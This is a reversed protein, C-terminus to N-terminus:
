KKFMTGISYIQLMKDLIQGREYSVLPKLATLFEFTTNRKSDNRSDNRSDNKSDSKASERTTEEEKIVEDQNTTKLGDLNFNSLLSSLEEPNINNVLDAISNFDFSSAKENKEDVKKEINEKKNENSRDIHRSHKRHSSM